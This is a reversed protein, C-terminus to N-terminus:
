RANAPPSTLETVWVTSTSEAREYVIRDGTPAWEPYRVYLAPSRYSSIRRDEGNEVAVWYVNWLGDRQGAFAIRKGDPSFSYPWSQGPASVVERVAGGAAPLWGIRTDGARMIEIAIRSGDPSWVPWGMGEVDKTLPRAPGGALDMRWINLAGSRAGHAVLSRGDPSLMPTWSLHSELPRHEIPRQESTEGTEFDATWFSRDQVGPAVYGVRRGDASWARAWSLEPHEIALRAEGSVLDLVWIALGAGPRLTGFTLRRADPSFRLPVKRGAIAEALPEPAGAPAGGATLKQAVIEHRTRFTVYAISRGDPSL